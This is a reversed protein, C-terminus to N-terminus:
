SGKLGQIFRWAKARREGKDDDARKRKGPGELKAVQARLERWREAVEIDSRVDSSWSAATM